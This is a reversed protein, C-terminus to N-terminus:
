FRVSLGRQLVKEGGFNSRPKDGSSSSDSSVDKGSKPLYDKLAAQDMGNIIPLSVIFETGEFGRTFSGDFSVEFKKGDQDSLFLRKRRGRFLM